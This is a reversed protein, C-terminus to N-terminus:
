RYPTGSVAVAGAVPRRRPVLGVARSGCTRECRKMPADAQVDEYFQELEWPETDSESKVKVSIAAIAFGESRVSFGCVRCVFSTPIFFRDVRVDGKKRLRRLVEARGPGSLSFCAAGAQAAGYRTLGSRAVCRPM